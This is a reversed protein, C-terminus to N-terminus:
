RGVEALEDGVFGLLPGLYDLGGADLRLSGVRDQGFIGYRGNRSIAGVRPLPMPAAPIAPRRVLM